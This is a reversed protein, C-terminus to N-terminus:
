SVLRVDHSLMQRTYTIWMPVRRNRDSWTVPFIDLVDSRPFSLSYSASWSWGNECRTFIYIRRGEGKQSFTVSRKRWWCSSAMRFFQKWGGMALGLRPIIISTCFSVCCNVREQAFIRLYIMEYNLFHKNGNNLRYNHNDQNLLQYFPYIRLPLSLIADFACLVFIKTFM